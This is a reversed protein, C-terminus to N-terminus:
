KSVQLSMYMTKLAVNCNLDVDLTTMKDIWNEVEIELV